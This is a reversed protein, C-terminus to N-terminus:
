LGRMAGEEGGGLGEEGMVDGFGMSNPQSNRASDIPPASRLNEIKLVSSKLGPYLLEPGPRSM